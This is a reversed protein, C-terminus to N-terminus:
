KCADCVTVTEEAQEKDIIVNTSCGCNECEIFKVIM